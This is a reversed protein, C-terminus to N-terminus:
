STRRTAPIVLFLLLFVFIILFLSLGETFLRSVLNYRKLDREGVKALNM